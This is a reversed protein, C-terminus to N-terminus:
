RQDEEDTGTPWNPDNILDRLATLADAEGARVGTAPGAPTGTAMRSLDSNTPIADQITKIGRRLGGVVTTLREQLLQSVEHYLALVLDRRLRAVQEIDTRRSIMTPHLKRMRDVLEPHWPLAQDRALPFRPEGGTVPSRRLVTELTDAALMPNALSDLLATRRVILARDGLAPLRRTLLARHAALDAKARGLPTGDAYARGGWEVLAGRLLDLGSEIVEQHSDLYPEVFDATSVAAPTSAAPFDAEGLGPFPDFPDDESEEDLLVVGDKGLHVLRSWEPWQGVSRAAADLLRYGLGDPDASRPDTAPRLVLALSDLRKLLDHAGDVLATRLGALAVREAEQAPDMRPEREALVAVKTLGELLRLAMARLEGSWIRLGDGLLQRVVLRRLGTIGGDHTYARLAENLPHHPDRELMELWLTRWDDLSETAHAMEQATTEGWPPLGAVAAGALASTFAVRDLRDHTLLQAMEYVMAFKEHVMSHGYEAFSAPAPRAPAIQDFRNAAVLVSNRLEGKLYRDRQLLTHFGTIHSNKALDGKLVILVITANAIEEETLFSDRVSGSGLGPFDVLDVTLGELPWLTAPVALDITIQHILPFTARLAEADLPHAPDIPLAGSPPPVVPPLRRDEGIRIAADLAEGSITVPAGAGARPLLAAGAKVAEGLRLLEYALGPLRANDGNWVQTCFERVPAWDGGGPDDPDVLTVAKLRDVRYPLRNKEVTEVIADRLRRALEAVMPASMYSVGAATQRPSESGPPAPHLRLVAINGTTHGSSVALLGPIGALLNLLLSKGSTNTGAVAVSPNRFTAGHLRRAHGAAEDIATTLETVRQRTRGAAPVAARVASLAANAREALERYTKVTKQHDM